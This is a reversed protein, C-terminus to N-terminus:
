KQLNREKKAFIFADILLFRIKVGFILDYM